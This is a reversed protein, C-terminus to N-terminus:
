NSEFKISSSVSSAYILYIFLIFQTFEFTQIMFGPSFVLLPYPMLTALYNWSIFFNIEDSPCFLVNM